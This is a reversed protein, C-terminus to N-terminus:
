AATHRVLDARITVNDATEAENAIAVSLDGSTSKIFVGSNAVDPKLSDGPTINVGAALVEIEVDKAGFSYVKAVENDAPENDLVGICLDDTGASDCEMVDTATTTDRYVGHFRSTALSEGALLGNLIYDNNNAM